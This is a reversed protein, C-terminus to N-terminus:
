SVKKELVSLVCPYYPFPFVRLVLSKDLVFAEPQRAHVNGVPFGSAGRIALADDKAEPRQKARPSLNPRSKSQEHCVCIDQFQIDGLGDCYPLM